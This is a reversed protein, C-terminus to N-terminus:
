KRTVHAAVAVWRGQRRAWIDTYRGQGATGNALTFATRAHIIAVDGLLRVNVDHAELNRLLSPQATAILFQERDVLTGDSLTCMFDDALLEKFRAVDSTQVADIYDHNLRTLTDLDSATDPVSMMPRVGRLRTLTTQDVRVLVTTYTDIAALVAERPGQRWESSGYFAAEQREREDMSAFAGM